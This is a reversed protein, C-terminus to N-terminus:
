AIRGWDFSSNTSAQWHVTSTLLGNDDNRLDNLFKDVCMENKYVQDQRALLPKIKTKNTQRRHPNPM